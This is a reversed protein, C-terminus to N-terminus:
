GRERIHKAWGVALGLSAPSVIALIADIFYIGRATTLVNLLGYAFFVMSLFALIYALSSRLYAASLPAALALSLYLAAISPVITLDYFLGYNLLSVISLIMVLVVLGVTGKRLQLEDVLVGRVAAYEALVISYQGISQLYVVFSPAVFFGGIIMLVSSLTFAFPIIWAHREDGSAYPALSICILLLGSSLIATFPHSPVVASPSFRWGVPISLAIQVISTALLAVYVFGSAVLASAIASLSLVMVISGSAPLNLVYFSIYDVTYAVYLVYSLLWSYLQVRALTPSVRKSYSYFGGSSWKSKVLLYILIALPSIALASLASVLPDEHSVALPLPSVCAVVYGLLLSRSLGM